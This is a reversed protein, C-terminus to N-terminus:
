AALAGFNHAPAPAASARSHKALYTQELVLPHCGPRPIFDIRLAQLRREMAKYSTPACRCIDALQQATLHQM